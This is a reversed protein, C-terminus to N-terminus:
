ASSPPTPGVRVVLSTVDGIVLGLRGDHMALYDFYDGGVETAPLELGALSGSLPRAGGTIARARRHPISAFGLFLKWRFYLRM